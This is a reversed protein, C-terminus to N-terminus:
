SAPCSCRRSTAAARRSAWSPETPRAARSGAAAWARTSSRRSGCRTGARLCTSRSAGTATPTPARPGRASASTSTSTPTPCRATPATRATRPIATALASSSRRRRLLANARFPFQLRPPPVNLAIRSKPTDAVNAYARFHEIVEDPTATPDPDPAQFFYILHKGPPLNLSTHFAFSGDAQPTPDIAIDRGLLQLPARGTEEAIRLKGFKAEPYPISGTVDFHGPDAPASPGCDIEAGTRPFTVTPPRIGVSVFVPKSGGVIPPSCSASTFVLKHWGKAPTTSDGASLQVTDNITGNGAATVAPTLTTGTGEDCVNVAGPTATGTVPFTDNAANPSATPDRPSTITPPAPSAPVLAALTVPWDVSTSDACFPAPPSVCTVGPYSRETLRLTYTGYSAVPVSGSFTGDSAVPLVVDTATGQVHVLVSGGVVGGMGVVPIALAGDYVTANPRPSELVPPPPAGAIADDPAALVGVLPLGSPGVPPALTLDAAAGSALPTDLDPKTGNSKTAFSVVNLGAGRNGAPGPPFLAGTPVPQRFQSASAWLLQVTRDSTSTEVAVHIPYHVGAQLTITNSARQQTTPIPVPTKCALGCVTAVEAICKADWEPETSYYSLYGGDCCFPDKACIQDVCPDCAALTTTSATLKDGLACIDHPCGPALPPGAPVDAAVISTGAIELTANGAATVTFTYAESFVPVIEGDWVTSYTPLGIGAPLM